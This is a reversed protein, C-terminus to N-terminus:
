LIEAKRFEDMLAPRHGHKQLVEDLAIAWLNSHNSDNLARRLGELIKCARRYRSRTARSIQYEALRLQGSVLIDVREPFAKMLAPAAYRIRQHDQNQFWCQVAAELEDRRLASLIWVDPLEYRIVEDVENLLDPSKSERVYANLSRYDRLKGTVSFVNLLYHAYHERLGHDALLAKSLNDFADRAKSLSARTVATDM